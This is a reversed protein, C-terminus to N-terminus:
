YIKRLPIFAQRFKERWGFFKPGHTMTGNDTWEFHHIAEHGLISFFMMFDPYTDTMYLESYKKQTKATTRGHCYGWSRLRKIYIRRFPPLKGDFLLNNIVMFWYLCDSRSPNFPKNDMGTLNFTKNGIKAQHEPKRRAM